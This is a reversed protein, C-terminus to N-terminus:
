SVTTATNESDNTIWGNEILYDRVTKDTLLRHEGVEKTAMQLVIEKFKKEADTVAVLGGKFTTPRGYNDSNENVELTVKSHTRHKVIDVVDNALNKLMAANDGTILLPKEAQKFFIINLGGVAVMVSLLQRLIDVAIEVHAKDSKAITKNLLAPQIIKAFGLVLAIRTTNLDEWEEVTFQENNDQHASQIKKANDWKGLLLAIGKFKLIMKIFTVAQEDSELEKVPNNQLKLRIPEPISDYAKRLTLHM